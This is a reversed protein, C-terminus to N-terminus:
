AVWLKELEHCVNTTGQLSISNLGAQSMARVNLQRDFVTEDIQTHHGAFVAGGLKQLFLGVPVEFWENAVIICPLGAANAEFATIGGGTIALDHKSFEKALCPVGMKLAFNKPLRSQLEDMHEFGPGVIITACKQREALLAVISVTVGYTDSGGLTVVIRDDRERLRKYNRIKENLILHKVGTLVKSGHLKQSDDCCLAAFNVDAFSAGPGRDDFTVLKVDAEKVRRAHIASTDLRDNVWVKVEYRKIIDLEWEATEEFDVVEYPLNHKELRFCAPEHHNVVIIFPWGLEKIRSSLHVVRFLHGMGRAHSSELCLAFM